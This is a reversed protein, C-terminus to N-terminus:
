KNDPQVIELPLNKDYVLAGSQSEGRAPRAFVTCWYTTGDSATAKGAGMELYDPNMMNKYHGPSNFWGNMVGKTDQYGYAINEGITTAEYGTDAIRKFPTTNNGAHSLTNELAMWEAHKQAAQCLKVNLELRGVNKTARLTNHLALLETAYIPYSAEKDPIPKLPLPTKNPGPSLLLLGLLPLGLLLAVLGVKGIKAIARLRVLEKNLDDSM